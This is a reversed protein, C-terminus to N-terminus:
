ALYKINLILGLNRKVKNEKRIQEDICDFFTGFEGISMLEFIAWIPLVM